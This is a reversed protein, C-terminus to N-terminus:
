IPPRRVVYCILLAITFRISLVDFQILGFRIKESNGM